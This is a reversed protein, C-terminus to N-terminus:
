FGDGERPAPSSLLIRSDSPLPPLLSPPVHRCLVAQRRPQYRSYAHTSRELRAVGPCAFGVARGARPQVISFPFFRIRQASPVLAISVGLDIGTKKRLFQLRQVNGALLADSETTRSKIDISTTAKRAAPPSGTAGGGRLGRNRGLLLLSAGDRWAKDPTRLLSQEMACCTKPPPVHVSACVIPSPLNRVEWNATM